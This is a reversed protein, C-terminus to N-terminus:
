TEIPDTSGSGCGLLGFHDWFIPCFCLFKKNTSSESPSSADGLAVLTFMKRQPKVLYRNTKKGGIKTM